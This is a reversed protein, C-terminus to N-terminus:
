AATELRPTPSSLRSARAVPCLRVESSGECAPDGKSSKWTAVSLTAWQDDLTLKWSGKLAEELSGATHDQADSLCNLASHAGDAAM